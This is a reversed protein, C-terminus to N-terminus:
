AWAAEFADLRWRIARNAPLDEASEPLNPLKRGECSLIHNGVSTARLERDDAVIVRFDEDFAWASQDFLSHHNKCLLIGNRLDGIIGNREVPIIHAADLAISKGGLRFGIDCLSCKDHYIRRIIQGFRSIRSVRATETLHPPSLEFPEFIPIVQEAAPRASVDIPEGRLIFHTGDFDEVYALGLAEYATRGEVDPAQRFVGVPVNDSSCNLLARNTDLDLEIEGAREEPSYRYVWSGDPRFQPEQDPYIGKTTQRVWLAYRSGRPKYIGRQSSFGKVAAQLSASAIVNGFM